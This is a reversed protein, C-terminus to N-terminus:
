KLKKYLWANGEERQEPFTWHGTELYLSLEKEAAIVNYASYMSTPPCTTDNFGWSYWGPATVRRAFNVVDYYPVVNLWNPHTTKDYDRFMHPWGGTRNFLYGTLDCLAPYYAALYKIRPDLGATIISLAGGQSGGNVAINEGDFADMSFIYDIARVCGLYVRKYYYTERDDLKIIMYQSLAGRGLDNYVEQDMTVPIGHIGVSLTIFGDEARQDPGYPRIGAGPVNLLAPYKGPAKPVSLIGYFRSNNINQLSLHYVNTSSTCKDPLLTLEPDISIEALEAKADKWFQDFDAPDNVTPKILQPDFGATGRSRYTKGDVEATVTCALFGPQSLKSGTIKGTGDKLVLKGQKTPPMKELGLEYSIEVDPLLQGDKRVTVTFDAQDGSKYIWSPKTPTVTVNVREIGPQGACVSATLVLILALCSRPNFLKM